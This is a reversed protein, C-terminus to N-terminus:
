AQFTIKVFGPFDLWTSENEDENISVFSVKRTKYKIANIKEFQRTDRNRREAQGTHIHNPYVWNGTIAHYGSGMGIRLLVSNPENNIKVLEDLMEVANGFDENPFTSFFEIEQTLYKDMHARVVKMWNNGTLSHFFRYNHPKKTSPVLEDLGKAWNLRLNGIGGVPLTEHLFVFGEEAFSYEHTREGQGSRFKWMGKGQYEIGNPNNIITGSVDGSFTKFPVIAPNSNIVVDGVQLYHMLNNVVGGFMEDFARSDQPRNGTENIIYNGIISRLAGKISSGPITLRGLGTTYHKRIEDFYTPVERKRDNDFKVGSRFFPCFSKNLLIAQTRKCVEISIKESRDIDANRLANTYASLQQPSLSKLLKVQDFFVYEKSDDDYYFDTGRTYDNDKSGGIHVPTVISLSYYFSEFPKQM